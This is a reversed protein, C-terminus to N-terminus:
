IFKMSCVLKTLILPPLEIVIVLPVTDGVIVIAVADPPFNIAFMTIVRDLVSKM